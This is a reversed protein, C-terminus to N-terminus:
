GGPVVSFFLMAMVKDEPDFIMEGLKRADGQILDLRDSYGFQRARKEAHGLMASSADLGIIRGGAGLAEAIMPQNLGSGSGLDLM